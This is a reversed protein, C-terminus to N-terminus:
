LKNMLLKEKKIFSVVNKKKLDKRKFGHNGHLGNLLYLTYKISWKLPFLFLYYIKLYILKKFIKRKPIKM